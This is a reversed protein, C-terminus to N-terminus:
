QDAGPLHESVLERLDRQRAIFSVLPVPRSMQQAEVLKVLKQTERSVFAQDAARSALWLILEDLFLVVASYGLGKAHHSLVSLGEDIGVFGEEQGEALERQSRYFADVLASVLARREEHGPAVELAAEFREADWAGELEGWAGGDGEGGLAEFFAS